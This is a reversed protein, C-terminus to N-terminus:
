DKVGLGGKNKSRCIRKWKVMCYPKKKKKGVWPFKRTHKDLKEIFTTNLLFMAMYYYPIGFLCAELLTLRARSSAIVFGTM